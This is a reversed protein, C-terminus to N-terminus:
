RSLFSAIENSSNYLLAGLYARSNKQYEGPLTEEVPVDSEEDEDYSLEVRALAARHMAAARQSDALSTEADALEKALFDEQINAARQLAEVAIIIGSAEGVGTDVALSGPRYHSMLRERTRLTAMGSVGSTMLFTQNRTDWIQDFFWMIFLQLRADMAMRSNQIRQALISNCVGRGPSVTLYGDLMARSPWSMAQRHYLDRNVMVFLTGNSFTRLNFPHRQPNYMIVYPTERCTFTRTWLVCLGEVQAVGLTNHMVSLLSHDRLPVASNIDDNHHAMRAGRGLLAPMPIMLRQAPANEDRNWDRFLIRCFSNGPLVEFQEGNEDGFHNLQVPFVNEGIAIHDEM